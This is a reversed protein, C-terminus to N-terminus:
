SFEERKTDERVAQRRCRIGLTKKQLFRKPKPNHPMLGRREGKKQPLIYQLVKETFATSGFLHSLQSKAPERLDRLRARISVGVAAPFTTPTWRGSFHSGGDSM